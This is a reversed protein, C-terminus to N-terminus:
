FKAFNQIPCFIDFNSFKTLVALGALGAGGGRSRCGEEEEEERVEADGGGVWRHRLVIRGLSLKV